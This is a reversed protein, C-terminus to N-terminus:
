LVFDALGRSRPDRWTRMAVEAWAGVGGERGDRHVCPERVQRRARPLGTTTGVKTLSGKRGIRFGDVTGSTANQVYLFKQDKTM